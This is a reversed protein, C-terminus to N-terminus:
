SYPQSPTDPATQVNWELDSEQVASRLEETLADCLAPATQSKRLIVGSNRMLEVEPCPIAKLYGWKKGLPTVSAALIALTSNAAIDLACSIDNVEVQPEPPVIGHAEFIQDFRRRMFTGSPLIWQLDALDAVTCPMDGSWPHDLSVLVSMDLRMLPVTVVSESFVDAVNTPGLVMDVDGRLLMSMLSDPVGTIINVRANDHKAILRVLAIPLPGRFWNYGAGVTIEASAGTQSSGIHRMASRFNADISNAYYSLIRGYANPEVGRPHRELLRTGLEEELRSIYRSLAPQNMGLDSAAASISGREVVKLFLRLHRLNMVWILYGMGCFM